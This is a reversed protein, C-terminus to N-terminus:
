YFNSSFDACRGRSTKDIFIFTCRKVSTWDFGGRIYKLFMRSVKMTRIAKWGDEVSSIDEYVSQEPLLLQNLIKLEGRKYDIALLSM